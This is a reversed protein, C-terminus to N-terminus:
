WLRHQYSYILTLKKICRPEVADYKASPRTTFPARLVTVQPPNDQTTMFLLGVGARAACSCLVDTFLGTVTFFVVAVRYGEPLARLWWAHASVNLHCSM